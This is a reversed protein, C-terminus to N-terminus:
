TRLQAALEQTARRLPEGALSRDITSEDTDQAFTLALDGKGRVTLRAVAALGAGPTLRTQGATTREAYFEQLQANSLNGYDNLHPALMSVAPDDGSEAVAMLDIRAPTGGVTFYCTVWAYPPSAPISPPPTVGSPWPQAPVGDSVRVDIPPQDKAGPTVPRDIGAKRLAAAPDLSFPCPGGTGQLEHAASRVQQYSFLDTDGASRTGEDGSCAGAGLLLGAGTLALARRHRAPAPRRATSATM